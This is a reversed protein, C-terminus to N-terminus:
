VGVRLLGGRPLLRRGSESIAGARSLLLRLLHFHSVISASAPTMGAFFRSRVDLFPPPQM